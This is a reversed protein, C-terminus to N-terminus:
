HNAARLLSIIKVIQVWYLIFLIASFTFAVINLMPILFFLSIAMMCLGTTFLQKAQRLPLKREIFYAEISKPAGFSLMVWAFVYSFVPLLILWILWTPFTCFNKPIMRATKYVSYCFFLLIIIFVISIILEYRLM